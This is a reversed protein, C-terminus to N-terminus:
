NGSSNASLWKLYADSGAVIPVAVVEPTDYSHLERVRKELKDFSNATTKAILLIESQTEITGQWRYVSQMQPLLQVCAALHEEVLADAIRRAEDHNSATMFM